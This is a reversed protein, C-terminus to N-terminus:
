SFRAHKIKSFNQDLPTSISQNGNWVYETHFNQPSARLMYRSFFSSPRGAAIM